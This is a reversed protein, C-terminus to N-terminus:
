HLCMRHYQGSDSVVVMLVIEQKGAFRKQNIPVM